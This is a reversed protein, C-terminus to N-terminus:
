VLFKLRSYFALASKADNYISAKDNSINNNLKSLNNIM